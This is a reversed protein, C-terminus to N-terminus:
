AVQYRATIDLQSEDFTISVGTTTKYRENPRTEHRVGNIEWTIPVSNSGVYTENCVPLATLYDYPLAHPEGLLEIEGETQESLHKRFQKIAAARAQDLYIEDSEIPPANYPYGGARQLLPKYTLEVYPYEETYAGPSASEGFDEETSANRDDVLDPDVSSGYRERYTTTEGYLELSNFPKIDSLANNNLVDVAMSLPQEDLIKEDRLERRQFTGQGDGPKYATADIILMPGSVTPEFWWRADILSTFWNIHDVMNNRNVQFRKQTGLGALDAALSPIFPIDSSAIDFSTDDTLSQTEELEKAIKNALDSQSVAEVAKNLWGSLNDFTTQVGDEEGVQQASVAERVDKRKIPPITNDGLVRTRVPEEFISRQTLGVAVNRDDVGNIAFNIVNSLTPNAWSKSVEIGRLLDAPDYVWFKLTGNQAGPGVGGVYGYHTIRWQDTQADHHMIRCVDYAPEDSFERDPSPASYTSTEQNRFGNIFQGISVDGWVSPIHVKATRTISAPGDKNIWLTSEVIPLRVWQGNERIDVVVDPHSPPNDSKCSFDRAVSPLTVDDIGAFAGDDPLSM